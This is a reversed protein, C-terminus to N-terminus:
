VTEATILTANQFGNYSFLVPLMAVGLAGLLGVQDSLGQPVAAHATPHATLCVVILALLAGVKLISLANQWNSGQRVGLLNICALLVLTGAAVIRGDITMGTLPELYGAFLVAAAANSGTSVILMFTWGFVFGVVPHYADKLYGYIGGDVPRRAALESFIFAGILAIIGGAFWCALAFAPVHARQAVVSPTRFIGSGIVMGISILALDFVNLRRLLQPTM